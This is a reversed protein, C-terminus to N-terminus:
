AIWGLKRMIGDAEAHLTNASFDKSNGFFQIMAWFPVPVESFHAYFQQRLIRRVRNRFVANGCKKRVVFALRIAGDPSEM